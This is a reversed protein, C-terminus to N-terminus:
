LLCQAPTLLRQVSQKRHMPISSLPSSLDSPFLNYQPYYVVIPQRSNISLICTVPVKLVYLCFSSPLHQQSNVTEGARSHPSSLTPYGASAPGHM